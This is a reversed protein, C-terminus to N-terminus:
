HSLQKPRHNNTTTPGPACPRPPEITLAEKPKLRAAESEELSGPLGLATGDRLAADRDRACSFRTGPKRRVVRENPWTPEQGQSLHSTTGSLEAQGAPPHDDSLDITKSTGIAEAWCSTKKKRRIRPQMLEGPREPFRSRLGTPRREQGLVLNQM